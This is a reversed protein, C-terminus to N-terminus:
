KISHQDTILRETMLGLLYGLVISALLIPIITKTSTEAAVSALPLGTLLAIVSGSAPASLPLRVHSIIVSLALWHLLVGICIGWGQGQFVLPILNLIGAAIGLLLSKFLKDM